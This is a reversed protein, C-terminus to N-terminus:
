LNHLIMTELFEILKKTRKQKKLFEAEILILYRILRKIPKIKTM